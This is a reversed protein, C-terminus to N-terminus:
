VFSCENQNIISVKLQTSLSFQASFTIFLPLTMQFFSFIRFIVTTAASQIPYITKSYIEFGLKAGTLECEANDTVFINPTINGGCKKEILPPKGPLFGRLVPFFPKKVRTDVHNALNCLRGMYLSGKETSLPLYKEQKIM